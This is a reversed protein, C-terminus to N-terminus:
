RYNFDTVNYDSLEDIRAFIRNGVWVAFSAKSMNKWKKTWGSGWLIDVRLDVRNNFTVVDMVGGSYNMRRVGTVRPTLTEFWRKVQVITKIEKEELSTPNIREGTSPEYEIPTGDDDFAEFSHQFIEWLRDSQFNGSSDADEVQYDECDFEFVLVTKGDVVETSIHDHTATLTYRVKAMQM